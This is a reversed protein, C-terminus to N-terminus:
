LDYRKILIAVLLISIPHTTCVVVILTLSEQKATYLIIPEDLESEVIKGHVILLFTNKVFVLFFLSIPNSNSTQGKKPKNTFLKPAESSM